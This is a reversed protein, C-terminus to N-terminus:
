VAQALCNKRMILSLLLAREGNKSFSVIEPTEGDYYWFGTKPTDLSLLPSTRTNGSFVSAIVALDKMEPLSM